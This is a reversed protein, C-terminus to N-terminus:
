THIKCNRVTRQIKNELTRKLDNFVNNRSLLITSEVKKEGKQEGAESEKKKIRTKSHKGKLKRVCDQM